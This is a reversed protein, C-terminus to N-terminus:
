SLSLTEARFIDLRPSPLPKPAWYLFPRAANRLGTRMPTLTLRHIFKLKWRLFYSRLNSMPCWICYQSKVGSNEWVVQKEHRENGLLSFFKSKAKCNVVPRIGTTWHMRDQVNKYIPVSFLWYYVSILYLSIAMGLWTYEYELALWWFIITRFKGPSRQTFSVSLSFERTLFNHPSLELFVSEKSGEGIQTPQSQRSYQKSPPNLFEDTSVYRFYSRGHLFISILGIILRKTHDHPM